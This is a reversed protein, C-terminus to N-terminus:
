RSLPLDTKKALMIMVSAVALSASKEKPFLDHAFMAIVMDIVSLLVLRIM